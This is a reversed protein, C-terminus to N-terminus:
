ISKLNFRQLKHDYNEVTAIDKIVRKFGEKTSETAIFIVVDVAHAVLAYPAPVGAEMSLDIMRQLAEECGNAHITAVGGPSGTNWAKLLDLAAKDRVEGVIIREPNLRMAVKLLSQMDMTSTTMLKCTNKMSTVIERVDEMIVLRQGEESLEAIRGIIANTFTTKGSGTAGVVVINKRNVIFRDIAEKHIMSLLGDDVYKNLSIAYANLKRIAIEPRNVLPPILATIRFDNGLTTELKPDGANIILERNSALMNIIFHVNYKVKELFFQGTHTKVYVEDENIFIDTLDERELSKQIGESFFSLIDNEEKTLGKLNTVTLRWWM